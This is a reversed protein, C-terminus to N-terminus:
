QLALAEALRGAEFGTTKEGVLAGKSNALVGLSPFAVGMNVTCNLGAVHLIREIEKLEQASARNHAAFGRNTAAICSGPTSYGAVKMPVAEVGLADSIRRIQERPLAPNVIAGFDNAAINNGAASFSGSLTAVSLGRRKFLSIEEQLCFSPLVAGNSNMALFIGSLGFGGVTAREIPVGLALLGASLKQSASADLVALEESAKAFIGIHPNGFNSARSIPM